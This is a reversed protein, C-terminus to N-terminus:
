LEVEEGREKVQKVTIGAQRFKDQYETPIDGLVKITFHGNESADYCFSTGIRFGAGMWDTMEQMSDCSNPYEVHYIPGKYGTIHGGEDRVFDGEQNPSFGERM